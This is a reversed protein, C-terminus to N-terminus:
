HVTDTSEPGTHDLPKDKQGTLYAVDIVELHLKHVLGQTRGQDEIDKLTQSMEAKKAKLQEEVTPKQVNQTSESPNEFPM